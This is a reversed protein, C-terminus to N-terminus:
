VLSNKMGIVLVHSAGLLPLEHMLRQGKLPITFVQACHEKLLSLSEYVSYTWFVGDGDSYSWEKGTCLTKLKKWIGTKCLLMKVTSGFLGKPLFGLSTGNVYMNSDSIAVGLKSVRLM